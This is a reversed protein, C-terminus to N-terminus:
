RAMTRSPTAQQLLWDRWLPLESDLFLPEGKNGYKVLIETGNPLAILPYPEDPQAALADAIITEIKALLSGPREKKLGATNKGLIPYDRDEGMDCYVHAPINALEDICDALSKWHQQPNLNRHEDFHNLFEVVEARINGKKNVPLRWLNELKNKANINLYKIHNHQDRSLARTRAAAEAREGKEYQNIVEITVGIREALEGMTNGCAERYQQLFGGITGNHHRQAFAFAAEPELSVTLPHFKSAPLRQFAQMHAAFEEPPIHWYQTNRRELSAIVPLTNTNTRVYYAIDTVGGYRRAIKHINNKPIRHKLLEDQTIAGAMYAHSIHELRKFVHAADIKKVEDPAKYHEKHLSKLIREIAEPQVVTKGDETVTVPLGFVSGAPILYGEHRGAHVPHTFSLSLAQRLNDAFGPSDIALYQYNENQMRSWIRQIKKPIWEELMNTSVGCLVCMDRFWRKPHKTQLAEPSQLYDYQEQWLWRKKLDIPNTVGDIDPALWHPGTKLLWNQIESPIYPDEDYDLGLRALAKRKLQKSTHKKVATERLKARVDYDDSGSPNGEFGTSKKAHSDNRVGGSGIILQEGTVEGIADDVRAENGLIKQIAPWLAPADMAIHLVVIGVGDFYSRTEECVQGSPLMVGAHLVIEKDHTDNAFQGLRGPRALLVDVLKIKLDQEQQGNECDAMVHQDIYAMVAARKQDASYGTEPVEADPEDRYKRAVAM